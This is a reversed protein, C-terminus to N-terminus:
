KALVRALITLMKQNTPGDKVAIRLAHNGLTTGMLKTDRLYLNDKRCEQVVTAASPGQPDLMCLVFNAVSPIIEMRQLDLLGAVLEERLKKTEMYRQKYYSTEQLALVGAIQGPLSVVWPPSYKRLQAIREAHACLYAVRVGSLGYSKSMSKSIVVNPRQVAFKELSHESGVYEVYTEDVWITTSSPADEFVCELTERGIHCGTPSNPNVLICFDYERALAKNLDELSPSFLQSRHCTLREVRCGIVNTLLHEYEGYTPDLLLVRSHPTLWQTLALFMLDSSGAGPLINEEGVGRHHAVTRVFGDCDTPPSTRIIWDLHTGLVKLIEPAPPFWADLVDGNIIESRKDLSSFDNGVADFFAGGHFCKKLSSM